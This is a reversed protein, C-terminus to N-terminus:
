LRTQVERRSACCSRLTRFLLTRFVPPPRQTPIMAAPRSEERIAYKLYDIRLPGADVLTVNSFKKLVGGQPPHTTPATPRPGCLDNSRLATWTMTKM